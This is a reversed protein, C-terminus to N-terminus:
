NQGKQMCIQQARPIGGRLAADGPTHACSGCIFFMLCVFAIIMGRMM